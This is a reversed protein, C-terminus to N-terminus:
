VKKFRRNYNRKSHKKAKALRLGFLEIMVYRLADCCDNYADIPINTYGGTAAKKYKYNEVETWWNKSDRTIYFPMSNILDIGASISGAGKKAPVVSFGKGQLITIAEDNAPDAIIRDYKTVGIETLKEALSFSNLKQEYLLEKGYVANNYVGVKVLATYNNRFGFDLGYTVHKSNLPFFTCSGISDFVAGETVGTSGLGYVYWKNRWYISKSVEYKEKWSLIQKKVNETCYPNHTFNSINFDAEPHDIIESHVWFRANPNYDIFVKESTRAILEFAVEFTLGNAENLFLIDRKGSKADQFSQATIFQITSGNKFKYPGRDLSPNKLCAKLIGNPDDILRKFDAIAGVYLNPFDQSIVHIIRKKEIALKSCMQMISYTKSSSTGGQCVSIFKTSNRLFYYVDTYGSFLPVKVGKIDILKEIEARTTM